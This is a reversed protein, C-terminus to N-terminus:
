PALLSVGTAAGAQFAAGRPSFPPIIKRNIPYTCNGPREYGLTYRCAHPPDMGMQYPLWLADWYFRTGSILPQLVPSSTHGYRELPVDEFYLPHHILESPEWFFMQEGFGRSRTDLTERSALREAFCDRPTLGDPLRTDFALRSLPTLLDDVEYPSLCPTESYQRGAPPQSMGRTGFALVSIAAAALLYPKM